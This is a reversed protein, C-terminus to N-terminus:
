PQYPTEELPLSTRFKGDYRYYANQCAPATPITCLEGVGKAGYAYPLRGEGKVTLINMPPVDTARLLGLTGYKVAPVGEKIPFHETLAYGLGMVVGGEIQGELSQRNVVTGVDCAATVDKIRGTREDIRVVQASYSYAVHSVPNTKDSGIPDTVAVYEGHFEQGELDTLTKGQLAKKLKGAAIRVAEGCFLTQRSATSTGCDPTRGTDPREVIVDNQTIPITEGLMQIAVTAVGQGMCAASSRIHIKGQEISLICRGVDPVGVGVGSNKMACAIGAYKSSYFADKVALLCERIGTDSGAKQGNPLTDGSKVANLMRFSWYDMGLQDALLNIASEIAFCSQTVGFGRFAGAPVNNTYVAKGIIDINQYNYPGAAHTCARQLVPGGLSAYAGTNAIIVAKMALLIGKADCGITLDIDMPHRKPHINISEQRSLRVKVPRKCLYAALAAHHQVSMDEKGGFGGGVLMSHCHVLEKRLCLMRSIERQEDYISQGSTYVLVGEGEPLAVACEPEMFAHETYPTHFVQHVVHTCSELMMDANGRKIHEEALLNGKPQISPANESLAEQPSLVPRLVQYEVKILACLEDLSEQRKSVVLAIADGIYHTEQGVPIMVPWDLTIHGLLNEPVDEATYVAIADRHSFVRTTDIALVKARPYASRLAKAYVMGEMYIDNTYQGTGLIKEKADVRQYRKDLQPIEAMQPVPKNEKFFVASLLIAQEVKKYGTCRCINGRIAKKVMEPTIDTQADILAKACLIMGPTCFGCQVAGCEAFCYTYVDKERQTLGEITIIKKGELKSLSYVCAKTAKGDILVTCAGCAGENCGDKAGTLLLKDRLFPLLKIDEGEYHIDNGNITFNIVFVNDSSCQYIDLIHQM